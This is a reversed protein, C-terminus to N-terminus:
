LYPKFKIQYIFLMSYVFWKFFSYVMRFLGVHDKSGAKGVTYISLHKELM